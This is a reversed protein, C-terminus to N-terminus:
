CVLPRLGVGYVPRGSPGASLTILTTLYLPILRLPM